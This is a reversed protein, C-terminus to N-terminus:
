LPKLLPNQPPCPASRAISPRNFSWRHISRGVASELSPGKYDPQSGAFRTTGDALVDEVDSVVPNLAPMAKHDSQLGM